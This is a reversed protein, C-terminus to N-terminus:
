FELNVGLTMTRPVPYRGNDVNMLGTNQNFAGIEPDYGSYKTFTKLNQISGYFRLSHVVKLRKILTKPLLYGLSINQIRLYSADEIFRDSIVLNQNDTGPRPRPISTGTNTTTWYNSHSKLQNNFLKDLCYGSIFASNFVMM